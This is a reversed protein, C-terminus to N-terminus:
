ASPTTRAPRWARAGAAPARRLPGPPRAYLLRGRCLLRRDQDGSRARSAPACRGIMARSRARRLRRREITAFAASTSARPLRRERVRVTGCARPFHRRRFSLSLRLRFGHPARGPRGIWWDPKAEGPPPLFARQRSIRRESNTVTGDKEGWAAAPLLVHAGADVTDNAMVNEPSSSCSSGASRRACRARARCRFRPIPAMVWLAKVKGRAIAEFLQLRRSNRRADRGAAGALLPRVRDIDERAFGMHAALQNALGGVERGGM